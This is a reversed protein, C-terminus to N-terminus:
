VIHLHRVPPGRRGKIGKPGSGGQVGKMGQLPGFVTLSQITDILEDVIQLWIISLLVAVFAVKFSCSHIRESNRLVMFTFVVRLRQSTYSLIHPIEFILLFLM